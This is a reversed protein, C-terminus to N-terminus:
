TAANPSCAAACALTAAAQPPTRASRPPANHGADRVIRHRFRAPQALVVLSAGKCLLVLHAVEDRRAEVHAVVAGLGLRRLAALEVQAVHRVELRRAVRADLRPKGKQDLPPAARESDRELRLGGHLGDPLREPARRHSAM